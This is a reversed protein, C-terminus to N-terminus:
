PTETDEAPIVFLTLREIRVVKVKVGTDIEGSISFARWLENGSQVYGEPQLPSTTQCVTGVLAELGVAPTRSFAKVGLRYTLYSWGIWALVLVASIWLPINIGLLPLFWLLLSLMIVIEIITTVLSYIAYTKKNKGSRM